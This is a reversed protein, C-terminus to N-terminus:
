ATTKRPITLNVTRPRATGECTIWDGNRRTRDDACACTCAYSTPGTFVAEWPQSRDQRHWLTFVPDPM